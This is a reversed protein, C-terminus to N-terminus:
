DELFLHTPLRYLWGGEPNLYGSYRGWTVWHLGPVLTHRFQLSDPLRRGESTFFLPPEPERNIQTIDCPIGPGRGIIGDLAERAWMHGVLSYGSPLAVIRDDRGLFGSSTEEGAQSVFYLCSTNSDTWWQSGQPLDPLPTRAGSPLKILTAKGDSSATAVATTVEDISYDIGTLHGSPEVLWTGDTRIVGTKDCEGDIDTTCVWLLNNGIPTLVSVPSQTLVKGQRDVLQTSWEDAPDKFLDTIVVDEDYWTPRGAQLESSWTGDWSMYRFTYPTESSIQVPLTASRSYERPPAKAFVRDSVAGEHPTQQGTDLDYIIGSKGDSKISDITHSDIWVYYDEWPGQGPGFAEEHTSLDLLKGGVEAFRTGTVCSAREQSTPWLLKGTMPDLVDVRSNSQGLIALASGDPGICVSASHYTPWVVMTGQADILGVQEIELDSGGAFMVEDPTLGNTFVPYLGLGDIPLGPLPGDSVPALEPLDPFALDPVEVLTPYDEGPLVVPLRADAAVAGAFATDWAESGLDQLSQPPTPRDTEAWTVGPIPPEGACAGLAVALACVCALSRWRGHTKTM